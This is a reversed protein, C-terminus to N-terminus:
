PEPNSEPEPNCRATQLAKWIVELVVDRQKLAVNDSFRLVTFGQQRFWADRRADYDKQAAHQGGDLEIILRAQYCVFDAIYPGIPAQRRFKHGAFRRERLRFWLLREADTSQRRLRRAFDRKNM